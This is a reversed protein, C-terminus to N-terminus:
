ETAPVELFAPIKPAQPIEFLDSKTLDKKTKGPPVIALYRKDNVVVEAARGSEKLADIDGRGVVWEPNNGRDALIKKRQLEQKVLEANRDMYVNKMTSTLGLMQDKALIPDGTGITQLSKEFKELFSNMDSFHKDSIKGTGGYARFNQQMRKAQEVLQRSDEPTVSIFGQKPDTLKSEIGAAFDAAAKFDVIKSETALKNLDAQTGKVLSSDYKLGAAKLTDEHRKNAAAIGARRVAIEQDHFHANERDRNITEQHAAHTEALTAANHEQTNKEAMTTAKSIYPALATKAAANWMLEGTQPDHPMKRDFDFAAGKGYTSAIADRTARLSEASNVDRMMNAIDKAKKSQEAYNDKSVERITTDLHNLREIFPKTDVAGPYRKALEINAVLEKRETNLKNLFSGNPGSADMESENVSKTETNRSPDLLAGKLLADRYEQQYQQQQQMLNLKSKEIQTVTQTQELNAQKQLMNQITGMVDIAGLSAFPNAM